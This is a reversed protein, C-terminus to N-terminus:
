APVIAGQAPPLQAAGEVRSVRAVVAEIAKAIEM